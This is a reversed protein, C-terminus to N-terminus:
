ETIGGTDHTGGMILSLHSRDDRRMTWVGHHRAVFPHPHEDLIMRVAVTIADVATDHDDLFAAPILMSRNPMDDLACTLVYPDRM